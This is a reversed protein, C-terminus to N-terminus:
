PLTYTDFNAINMAPKGGLAPVGTYSTYLWEKFFETWRATRDSLSGATRATLDAAKVMAIFEPTTANGYVHGPKTLWDHMLTKFVPEGLIQRVAYMVTAGRTYMADSDFMDAATPPDAPPVNWFTPSVSLTYNTQYRSALTQGGNRVEEWLWSSFETMGENLWIDKWQTLTLYDGFYMHGNEHAITGVDPGTSTVSSSIAYTPKSQTELSYGVDILPVIGGQSTFPYPLAYYEAYFDIISPTRGLNTLMTSKGTTFANDVATTFPVSLPSFATTPTMTTATDFKGIALGVLYSATPDADNWVFTRRGGAVTESTKVGPGVVQWTPATVDPVSMRITYTAKDFPVNNTPFWGMAGVPESVVIAGRTADPVFGEESGDPDVYAQEVGGYTVVVTFQTGQKIGSAPTVALKYGADDQEFAAAAGDVLVGTVDLWPALDFTFSSLNQTATMTATSTGQLVKTSITYALDLDYHTVDYGGNGITPFLTDGLTRAGATYVTPAPAEPPAPPKDAPPTTPVVAPPSQGPADPVSASAITTRGTATRCSQARGTAARRTCVVLRFTAGPALAGDALRLSATVMRSHGPAVPKTRVTRLLQESAVRGTGVLRYRLRARGSRRGRNAVKVTIPFAQGPVVTAPPSSVSSVSLRAQKPGAASVPAAGALLVIALAISRRSRSM